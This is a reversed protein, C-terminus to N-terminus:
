MKEFWEFFLEKFDYCFVSEVNLRYHIVLERIVDDSIVSPYKQVKIMELLVGELSMEYEGHEFYHMVENISEGDLSAECDKILLLLKDEMM